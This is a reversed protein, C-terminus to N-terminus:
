GLPDRYNLVGGVRRAARLAEQELIALVDVGLFHHLPPLRGPKQLVQELELNLGLRRQLAFNVVIESGVILAVQHLLVHLEVLVAQCM